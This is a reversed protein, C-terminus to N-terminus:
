VEDNWRAWLMADAYLYCSDAIDEKTLSPAFPFMAQFMMGALLDRLPIDYPTERKLEGDANRYYVGDAKVSNM